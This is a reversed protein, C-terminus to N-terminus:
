AGLRLPNLFCINGQLQPFKPKLTVCVCVCLLEDFFAKSYDLTKPWFRISGIKAFLSVM